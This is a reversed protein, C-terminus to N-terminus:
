QHEISASARQFRLGSSRSITRKLRRWGGRCLCWGVVLGASRAVVRWVLGATDITLGLSGSEGDPYRQAILRAGRRRAAVPLLHSPEMAINALGHEDSM